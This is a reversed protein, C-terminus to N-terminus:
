RRAGEATYPQSSTLQSRSDSVHVGVTIHITAGSIGNTLTQTVNM